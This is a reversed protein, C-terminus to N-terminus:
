IRQTNSIQPKNKEKIPLMLPICLTVRVGNRGETKAKDVIEITAKRGTQKSLLRLREKTITTSLSRKMDKMANGNLGVGNDEIVCRLFKQQRTIKVTVWGRENLKTFGHLIANEVFPQILMPPMLVDDREFGPYPEIFYDFKNGRQSAQLNLYNELAAVEDRLLVANKRSNDLSLRLLRSFRDLFNVSKTIDGSLIYSQLAGLTNFIFHPEMQSRLKQQELQAERLQMQMKKRRALMFGFVVLFLGIIVLAVIILLRQSSMKQTAKMAAKMSTIQEDKIKKMIQAEVDKAQNRFAITDYQLHYIYSSDLLLYAEKYKGQKILVNSKHFITNSINELDNDKRAILLATDLYANAKQLNGLKNYEAAITLYNSPFAYGESKHLMIAQQINEIGEKSKGQLVLLHGIDEYKRADLHDSSFENFRQFNKIFYIASDVLDRSIYYRGIESSFAAIHMPDKSIKLGEFLYKRYNVSDDAVRYLYSLQSYLQPLEEPPNFKALEIAELAHKLASDLLTQELLLSILQMKGIVMAKPLKSLGALRMATDLYLKASDNDYHIFTRGKYSYWASLLAAHNRENVSPHISDLFRRADKIDRNNYNRALENRLTSILSDGVQDTTTPVPNNCAAVLLLFFLSVRMDTLYGNPQNKGM